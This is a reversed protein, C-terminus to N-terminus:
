EQVMYQSNYYNMTSNPKFLLILQSPSKLPPPFNLIKFGKYRM